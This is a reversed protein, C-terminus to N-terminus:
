NIPLYDASRIAHLCIWFLSGAGTRLYLKPLNIRFDVYKSDRVFSIVDQELKLLFLRDKPSEMAELLKEDPGQQAFGYPTDMSQFAADGTISLDPGVPITPASIGQPDEEQIGPVGFRNVAAGRHISPGMRDSIEYFQDRFARSGAESGVRSSAAGSAPGSYSEEEEAAKVSASDDPRLSEKEDLAFTTGSAVSKGDLSAPKTSSSSLHTQDDEPRSAGNTTAMIRPLAKGSTDDNGGVQLVEFSENLSQICKDKSQYGGTIHTTVVHDQSELLHPQVLVPLLSADASPPQSSNLSSNQRAAVLSSQNNSAAMAAVQIKTLLPVEHRPKHGSHASGVKAFSPRLAQNMAINSDTAPM